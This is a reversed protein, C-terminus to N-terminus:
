MMMMMLEASRGKMFMIVDENNNAHLFAEHIGVVSMARNEKAHIVRKIFIADTMVTLSAAEEKKM